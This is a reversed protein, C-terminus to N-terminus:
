KQFSPNKNVTETLIRLSMFIQYMFYHIVKTKQFVETSIFINHVPSAIWSNWRYEFPECAAFIRFQCVPHCPCVGNTRTPSACRQKHFMWKLIPVSSELRIVTLVSQSLASSPNPDGQNNCIISFITVIVKFSVAGIINAM